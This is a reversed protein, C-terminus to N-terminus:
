WLLIKSSNKCVRFHPAEYRRHCSPLWLLVSKEDHSITSTGAYCSREELRSRSVVSGLTETTWPPLEGLLETNRIEGKWFSESKAGLQKAQKQLPVIICSLKNQEPKASSSIAQRGIRSTELLINRQLVTFIIVVLSRCLFFLLLWCLIFWSNPPQFQVYHLRM